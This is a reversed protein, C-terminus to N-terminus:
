FFYPAGIFDCSQPVPTSSFQRKTQQHGTQSSNTNECSVDCLLVPVWVSVLLVLSSFLLPPQITIVVTALSELSLVDAPCVKGTHYPITHSQQASNSERLHTVPCLLFQATQGHLVGPLCGFCIIKKQKTHSIVLM